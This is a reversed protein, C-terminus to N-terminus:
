AGELVRLYPEREPLYLPETTFGGSVKILHEFKLIRPAISGNGWIDEYHTTSEFSFVYM